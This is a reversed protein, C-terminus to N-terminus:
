CFPKCSLASSSRFNTRPPLQSVGKSAKPSIPCYARRAITSSSPLSIPFTPYNLSDPGLPGARPGGGSPAQPSKGRQRFYVSTISCQLIDFKLCWIVFLDWIGINLSWFMFCTQFKSVPAGGAPHPTWAFRPCNQHNNNTQYKINTIQFKQQRNILPHMGQMLRRKTQGKLQPASNALVANKLWLM